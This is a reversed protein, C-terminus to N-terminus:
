KESRAVGKKNNEVSIGLGKLSKIRPINVITVKLGNVELEFM